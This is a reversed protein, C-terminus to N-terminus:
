SNNINATHIVFVANEIPNTFYVKTGDPIIAVEFPFHPSELNATATIKNTSTNIVSVTNSGSNTIYAFPLAGSTSMLILFVLVATGLINILIHGKHIKNWRMKEM